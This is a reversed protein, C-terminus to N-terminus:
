RLVGQEVFTVCQSHLAPDEVDACVALGADVDFRRLNYAIGLLCSDEQPGAHKCRSAAAAGDAEAAGWGLGHFCNERYKKEPGLPVRLCADFARDLDVRAIYKGIGHWCAKHVLFDGEIGYCHEFALADDIQAIEGNVDHRCFDRWKGADDCAAFAWRSDITSLALAIGFVCQDRWKKRPITPCIELSAQRDTPAHLEAIDSRCEYHTDRDERTAPEPIQACADEAGPLDTPARQRALQHFCIDRYQGPDHELCAQETYRYEDGDGESTVARVGDPRPPIAVIEDVSQPPPPPEPPAQWGAKAAEIGGLCVLLCVLYLASFSPPTM